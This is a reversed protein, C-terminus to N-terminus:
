ATFRVKVHLARQTVPRGSRANVADIKYMGAKQFVLSVTYTGSASVVLPNPNYLIPTSKFKPGFPPFLWWQTTVIGGQAVVDSEGDSAASIAADDAPVAPAGVESGSDWTLDQQEASIAVAETSSARVM